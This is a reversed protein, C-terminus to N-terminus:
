WTKKISTNSCLGSLAIAKLDEKDKKKSISYRKLAEKCSKVLSDNKPIDVKPDSRHNNAIKILEDRIQRIVTIEPTATPNAATCHDNISRVFARVRWTQKGRKGDFSKVYSEIFTYWFPKEAFICDDSKKPRSPTKPAKPTKPTKTGSNKKKAKPKKGTVKGGKGKSYKRKDKAIKRSPKKRLFKPESKANQALWANAKEFFLEFKPKFDDDDRFDWIQMCTNYAKDLIENNGKYKEWEKINNYSLKM